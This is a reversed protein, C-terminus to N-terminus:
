ASHLPIGELRLDEHGQAWPVQSRKGLGLVPQACAVTQAHLNELLYQTGEVVQCVVTHAVSINLGLVDEVPIVSALPCVAELQGVKTEDIMLSIGGGEAASAVVLSGFEVRLVASKGLARLHVHPGEEGGKDIHVWLEGKRRLM